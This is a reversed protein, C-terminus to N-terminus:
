ELLEQELSKAYKITRAAFDFTAQGVAGATAMTTQYKQCCYLAFIAFEVCVGKYVCVFVCLTASCTCSFACVNTYTRCHWRCNTCNSCVSMFSTHFPKRHSHKCRSHIQLSQCNGANETLWATLTLTLLVHRCVPLSVPTPPILASLLYSLSLVASLPLFLSWSVSLCTNIRQSKRCNTERKDRLSM